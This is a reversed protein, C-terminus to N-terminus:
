NKEIYAKLIEKAFEVKSKDYELGLEDALSKILKKNINKSPTSVFFGLDFEQTMISSPKQIQVKKV